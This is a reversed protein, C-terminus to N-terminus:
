DDWAGRSQQSNSVNLPPGDRFATELSTQASAGRSADREPAHRRPLSDQNWLKQNIDININKAM